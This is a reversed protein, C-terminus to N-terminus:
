KFVLEFNYIFVSTNQASFKNLVAYKLMLRINKKYGQVSAQNLPYYRWRQRQIHKRTDVTVYRSTKQARLSVM